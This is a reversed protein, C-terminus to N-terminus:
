RAPSVSFRALESKPAPWEPALAQAKLYSEYAAKVDGLAEMSLGRNYWARQPEEVGLALGHDIDAVAEAYQRGAALAAGRNVYAEGVRPDTRLASDFDTKAEAYREGTMWIVGRNVYTAALQRKDLPETDIAVTCPAVAELMGMSTDAQVKAHKSCAVAMSNTSFVTSSANNTSPAAACLGVASGLVALTTLIRM